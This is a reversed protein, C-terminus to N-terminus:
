GVIIVQKKTQRRRQLAAADQERREGVETYAVETVYGAICGINRRSYLCFGKTIYNRTVKDRKM